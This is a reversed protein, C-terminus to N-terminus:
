IKQCAELYKKASKWIELVIDVFEDSSELLVSFFVV